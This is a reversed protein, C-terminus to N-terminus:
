TAKVENEWLYTCVSDNQHSDVRLAICTCQERNGKWSISLIEVAIIVRAFFTIYVGGFSRKKVVSVEM